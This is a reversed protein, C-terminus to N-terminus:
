EAYVYSVPQTLKTPLEPNAIGQCLRKASSCYDDKLIGAARDADDQTHPAEKLARLRRKHPKGRVHTDMTRQDIFYKSCTICFHQGLGPLDEDPKTAEAVRKQINEEKVDNWVQDIDRTRRKVKYRSNRVGSRGM